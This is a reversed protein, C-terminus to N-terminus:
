RDPPQDAEKVAACDHETGKLYFPPNEQCAPREGCAALVAVFLVGFVHRIGVSM